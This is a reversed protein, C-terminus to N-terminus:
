SRSIDARNDGYAPMPTDLVPAALPKVTQAPLAQSRLRAIWRHGTTRSIYYLAGLLVVATAIVTTQADTQTLPQVSVDLRTATNTAFSVNSGRTVTFQSVGSPQAFELLQVAKSGTGQTTSSASVGAITSSIAFVRTGPSVLQVTVPAQDPNTITVAGGGVDFKLNTGSYSRAWASSVAWALVAIIVVVAVFVKLYTKM